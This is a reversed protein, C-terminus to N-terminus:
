FLFQQTKGFKTLTNWSWALHKEFYAIKKPCLKRIIDSTSSSILGNNRDLFHDLLHLGKGRDNVTM